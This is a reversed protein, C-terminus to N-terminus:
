MVAEGRGYAPAQARENPCFFLSMGTRGHYRFTKDDAVLFILIGPVIAQTYNVGEKPCGLASSGWQVSLVQRITIADEAVGIRTALDTVAGKIQQDMSIEAPRAHPDIEAEPQSKSDADKMETAQQMKDSQCSTSVFILTCLGLQTLWKTRQNM